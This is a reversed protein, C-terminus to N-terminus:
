FPCTGACARSVAVWAEFGAYPIVFCLLGVFVQLLVGTGRRWLGCLLALIFCLAVPLVVFSLQSGLRSGTAFEFLFDRAAFHYATMTVLGFGAFTLLRPLPSSTVTQDM